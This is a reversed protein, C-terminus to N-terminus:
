SNEAPVAAPDNQERWQAYSIRPANFRDTTRCYVSPSGLRGLPAFGEIHLRPGVLQDALHFMVVEGVYVKNTGLPITSHLRCELSVQAEAVRPVQLHVSPATTLGAAALESQDPPFDAASINMAAFLDETVMNVVFEGTAEINAATDKLQGADNSGVSIMVYPPNSAVANFFSFPALNVTGAANVSTVWAIPRPVVINTLLKYNDAASHRSPDIQM